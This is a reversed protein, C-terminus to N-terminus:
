DVVGKWRIQGRIRVTDGEICKTDARIGLSGLPAAFENESIEHGTDERFRQWLDQFPLFDSDRETRETHERLWDCVRAVNAKARSRRYSSVCLQTQLTVLSRAPLSRRCSVCSVATPTLRAATTSRRVEGEPSGQVDRSGGADRDSTQATVTGACCTRFFMVELCRPDHWLEVTHEKCKFRKRGQFEKSANKVEREKEGSPM